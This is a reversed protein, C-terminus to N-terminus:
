RDARIEYVAMAANAALAVDDRPLRDASAPSDLLGASVAAACKARRWATVAVALAETLTRGTYALSRDDLIHVHVAQGPTRVHAVPRAGDDELEDWLTQADLGAPEDLYSVDPPTM